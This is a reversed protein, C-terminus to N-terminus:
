LSQREDTLELSRHLTSWISHLLSMRILRADQGTVFISDSPECDEIIQERLDVLANLNQTLGTELTEVSIAARAQQHNEFNEDSYCDTADLTKNGKKNSCFGLGHFLERVLNPHYETM